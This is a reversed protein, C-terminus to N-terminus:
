VALLFTRELALWRLSKVQRKEVSAFRCVGFPTRGLTSASARGLLHVVFPGARGSRYFRRFERGEGSVQHVGVEALHAIRLEKGPLFLDCEGLADLRCLPAHKLTKATNGHQDLLDHLPALLRDLALAAHGLKGINGQRAILDGNRPITQLYGAFGFVVSDINSRCLCRGIQSLPQFDNNRKAGPCCQEGFLTEASQGAALIQCLIASRLQLLEHRLEAFRHLREMEIGVPDRLQGLNQLPLVLLEPADLVVQQPKGLATSDVSLIQEFVTACQPEIWM